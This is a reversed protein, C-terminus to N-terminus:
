LFIRREIITRSNSYKSNSRCSDLNVFDIGILYNNEIWVKGGDELREKDKKVFKAFLRIQIMAGFIILPLFAIILLTLQWSFLFGILIGAGVTIFNQIMIGLRVGSAGQVASAETALYTCLAGTNHQAQDFYAVDQRLISRFIQSRLRKTLAEGSCSFLFIQFRNRLLLTLHDALFKSTIISRNFWM